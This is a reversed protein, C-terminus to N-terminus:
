VYLRTYGLASLQQWFQETMKLNMKIKSVGIARVPVIGIVSNCIFMADAALCDNLTLRMEQVPLAMQASFQQMVAARMVGAVGCHNLKPTLLIKDRLIFVNSSVGEVVSGSEDLMLGEQYLQEDRENAALVQELRNLHKIGALAPNSSLRQQCLQLGVGQTLRQQSFQPLLHAKISVTVNTATQARYGRQSGARAIVIKIVANHHQMACAFFDKEIAAINCNINLRKASETLRARHFAWLPVAGDIVLITEFFGDGYSVAREWANPIAAAAHM